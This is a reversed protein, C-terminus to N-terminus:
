RGVLLPVLLELENNTSCNDPQYQQQDGRAGQAEEYSYFRAVRIFTEAFEFDLLGGDSGVEMLCSFALRERHELLSCLDSSLRQDLNHTVTLRGTPPTRDLAERRGTVDLRASTKRVPIRAASM